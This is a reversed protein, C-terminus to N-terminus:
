KETPRYRAGPAWWEELALSAEEQFASNESFAMVELFRVLVAEQEFSFAGLRPPDRDPPRLNFLLTDVVNSVHEISRLSYEVLAPMYHRFSVPDLHAIGWYHQELYADSMLDETSSYPPQNEYNDAANGARLSMPPASGAERGFAIKTQEVITTLDLLSMVGLTGILPASTRLV